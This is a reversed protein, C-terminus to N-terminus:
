SHSTATDYLILCVGICHALLGVSLFQSLSSFAYMWLVGKPHINISAKNPMAWFQFCDAKHWCFFLIILQPLNMSYFVICFTRFLCIWPSMFTILPKWLRPTSLFPFNSSHTYPKRQPNHFTRCSHLTIM